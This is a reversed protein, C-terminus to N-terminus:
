RSWGKKFLGQIRKKIKEYYITDRKKYFSDLLEELASLYTLNNQTLYKFLIDYFYLWKYPTINHKASIVICNPRHHDLGIRLSKPRCVCLDIIGSFHIPVQEIINPINSMGDHFEVADPNQKWHSFLIIVDFRNDKFLKGYEKLTLKHVVKAGSKKISSEVTTLHSIFQNSYIKWPDNTDHLLEQCNYSFKKAFDKNAAKLDQRFDEESTPVGFAIICQKPKIIKDTIVEIM